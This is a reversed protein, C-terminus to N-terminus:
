GSHAGPQKNTLLLYLALLRYRSIIFFPAGLLSFGFDCVALNITMLEPPTLKKRKRCYVLLVTGNGLVSTVGPSLTITLLIDNKSIKDCSFKTM